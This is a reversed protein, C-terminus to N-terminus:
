PGADGSFTPTAEAQTPADGYQGWVGAKTAPLYPEDSAHSCASVITVLLLAVACVLAVPKLLAGIM